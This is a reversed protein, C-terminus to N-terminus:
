EDVMGMLIEEDAFKWNFGGATKRRGYNNLVESISSASIGYFMAAQKINVFSEGTEICVVKKGRSRMKELEEETPKRGRNKERLIEKVSEPCPKGKNAVTGGNEYFRKLGDSIRKKTEESITKGKHAESIKKKTETSTKHGSRSLSMKLRTEESCYRGKSAISYKKRIEESPNKHSESLRRRQEETLKHGVSGVGGDCRNYGYKPNTSKYKKIYFKELECAQELSLNTELVYHEINDWGYKKIARWFVTQNRYGNGNTKWRKAPEHQTIGIYIKGNPVKHMYVSYM